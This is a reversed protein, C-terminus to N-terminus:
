WRMMPLPRWPTRLCQRLTERALMAHFGANPWAAQIARVQAWPLGFRVAGWSVDVLDARRYTEVSAEFPGCYPRLKHHQDILLSVEESWEAHGTDSLYAIAAAISPGLYDFSRHTWIGLDHFAAAVLVPEPPEGPLPSLAAYAHLVRHVHHRYATFDAGLAPRHAALIQDVLPFAQTTPLATM